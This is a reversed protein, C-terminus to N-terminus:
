ESLFHTRLRVPLLSHVEPQSWRGASPARVIEGEGTMRPYSGDPARLGRAAQNYRAVFLKRRDWVLFCVRHMATDTFAWLPDADDALFDPTLLADERPRIVERCLPCYASRTM